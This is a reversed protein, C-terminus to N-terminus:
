RMSNTDLSLDLRDDSIIGRVSYKLNINMVDEVFYVELEKISVAPLYTEIQERIRGRLESVTHSSQNQFLYRRVGVGFDPLMVREGPSTLIVNKLNQKTNEAISMTLAMGNEAKSVSVPLKPGFGVSM